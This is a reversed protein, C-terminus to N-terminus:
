RRVDCREEIATVERRHAGTGGARAEAHDHAAPHGERAAGRHEATTAASRSCRHNSNSCRSCGTLILWGPIGIRLSKIRRAAELESPAWAGATRSILAGSAEVLGVSPM